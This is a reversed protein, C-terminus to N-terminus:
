RTYLLKNYSKNLSLITVLSLEVFKALPSCFASQGNPFDKTGSDLVTVGPIFKLCNPNPTDQTQIFMTRVTSYFVPYCQKLNINFM